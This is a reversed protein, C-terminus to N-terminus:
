AKATLPYNLDVFLEHMKDHHIKSLDPILVMIRDEIIKNFIIEKNSPPTFYFIIKQYDLDSLTDLLDALSVPQQITLMDFLHLVGESVKYKLIIQKDPYYYHCDNLHYIDHWLAIPSYNKVGFLDKPTTRNQEFNVLLQLDENKNLNLKQKQIIKPIPSHLYHYNYDTHEEFGLDKYFNLKEENPFLFFLDTDTWHDNIIERILHAALGKNRYDPRTMVTGIQIARFDYQDKQLQIHTLSANSIVEDGIFWSYPVYQENWFGWQFWKEFDINFTSQALKNFSERYQDNLHFSRRFRIQDYLM